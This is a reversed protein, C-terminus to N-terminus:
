AINTGQETASVLVVYAALINLFWKSIIPLFSVGDFFALNQCDKTRDRFPLFKVVQRIEVYDVLAHANKM